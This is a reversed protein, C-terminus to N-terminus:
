LLGLASAASEAARMASVRSAAVDGHIYADAGSALVEWEWASQGCASQGRAAQGRAPWVALAVAGGPETAAGLDRLWVDHGAMRASHWDIRGSM